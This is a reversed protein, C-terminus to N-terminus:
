EKRFKGHDLFFLVQAIVDEEKMIFTHGYPLVLFDAMGGVKAREVAVKGDDKGPIMDSFVEDFFSAEDGTIIGVPYTVPPLRRAIGDPGTGLQQGAPGNVWQYIASDKLRDTVESGQNPPSIMVTRGLEPIEEQTLYYRLLIGGMSHTVFHIQQAEARRCRRLGEPIAMMSLAEIPKKTSPYDINATRYGAATLADALTEM